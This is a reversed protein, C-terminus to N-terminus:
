KDHKIYKLTRFIIKIEDFIKRKEKKKGENRKKNRGEKRRLNSLNKQM